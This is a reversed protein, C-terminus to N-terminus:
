CIPCFSLLYAGQPLHEEILDDNHENREIVLFGYNGHKMPWSFLYPSTVELEEAIEAVIKEESGNRKISAREIARVRKHFPSEKIYACYKEPEEWVDHIGKCFESEHTCVGAVGKFCNFDPNDVFYAAKALDFCSKHCFDHLVFEPIHDLHQEINHLLVIKKPLYNLFKLLENHKHLVDTQKM